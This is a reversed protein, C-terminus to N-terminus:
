NEHEDCGRNHDEGSVGDASEELFDGVRDHARLLAEMKRRLHEDGACARKLFAARQRAPLQLAETFVSLERESDDNM